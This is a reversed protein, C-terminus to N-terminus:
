LWVFYRPPDICCDAPPGEGAVARWETWRLNRMANIRLVSEEQALIPSVTNTRKVALSGRFLQVIIMSPLLEITDFDDLVVYIPYIM